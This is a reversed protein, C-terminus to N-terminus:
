KSGLELKKSAEPSLWILYMVTRFGLWSHQETKRVPIFAGPQAYFPGHFYSGGSAIVYNSDNIVEQCRKANRYEELKMLLGQHVTDEFGKCIASLTDHVFNNYLYFVEDSVPMYPKYDPQLSEQWPTYKLSTLTWEAVNGLSNYIGVENPQYTKVPALQSFGDQDSPILVMDNADMGGSTNTNDRRKELEKRYDEFYTEMWPSGVAQAYELESATPLRISILLKWGKLDYKALQEELKKQKWECYRQAQEFTVGCIPYDRLKPHWFYMKAVPENPVFCYGKKEDFFDRCFTLTDPRNISDGTAKCFEMYDGVSVEYKGIYMSSVFIRRQARIISFTDNGRVNGSLFSGGGLGTYEKMVEKRVKRPLLKHQKMEVSNYAWDRKRKESVCSALILLFVFYVLPKCSM